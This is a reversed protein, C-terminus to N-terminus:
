GSTDSTYWDSCFRRRRIPSRWGPVQGRGPVPQQGGANDACQPPVPLPVGFRCAGFRCASHAVCSGCISSSVMGNWEMGNREEAAVQGGMLIREAVQEPGTRGQGGATVPRHAARIRHRRDMDRHVAAEVALGARHEQGVLSEVQSGRQGGVGGTARIHVVVVVFSCQADASAGVQDDEVRSGKSPGVSSIPAACAKSV